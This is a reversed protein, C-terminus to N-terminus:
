DADIRALAGLSANRHWSRCTSRRAPGGAAPGTRTALVRAVASGLAAGTLVDGPYHAGTWVRSFAVGAALLGLPLAAAPAEHAAGVAFAAASSTHGSPFSTTVPRRRVRRAVPVRDLPPRTRNVILKAVGNATASAVALSVTGRVAARRLAPRGSAALLGAVGFWLLGHDAARSLAPMARDLVPGHRRTVWAFMRRDARSLAARLGRLDANMAPM